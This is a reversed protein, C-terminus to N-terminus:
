RRRFVAEHDLIPRGDRRPAAMVRQCANVRRGARDAPEEACARSGNAWELAEHAVDNAAEALRPADDRWAYSLLTQAL